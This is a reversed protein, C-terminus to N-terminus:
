SLCNIKGANIDVHCPFRSSLLKTIELISSYYTEPWGPTSRKFGSTSRQVDFARHDSDESCVHSEIGGGVSQSTIEGWHVKHRCCDSCHGSQLYTLLFCAGVNGNNQRGLVSATLIGRVGAGVGCTV